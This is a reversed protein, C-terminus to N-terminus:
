EISFIPEESRFVIKKKPEAYIGIFPLDGENKKIKGSGVGLIKGNGCSRSLPDPGLGTRARSAHDQSTARKGIKKLKLHTKM